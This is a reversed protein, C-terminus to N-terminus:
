STTVRERCSARGIQITTAPCVAALVMGRVRQDVLFEALELGRGRYQRRDVESDGREQEADHDGTRNSELALLDGYELREAVAVRRDADMVQLQHEHDGQDARHQTR